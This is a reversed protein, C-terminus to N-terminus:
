FKSHIESIKIEEMKKTDYIKKIERTLLNFTFEYENIMFSIRKHKLDIKFEKCEVSGDYYYDYIDEIKKCVYVSFVSEKKRILSIHLAM